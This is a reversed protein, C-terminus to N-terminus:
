MKRTVKKRGQKLFFTIKADSIHIKKGGITYAMKSWDNFLLYKPFCYKLKILLFLFMTYIRHSVGTIGVQCTSDKWVSFYVFLLRCEGSSRELQCIMLKGQTRHSQSGPEPLLTISLLAAWSLYSRVTSTPNDSFMWHFWVGAPGRMGSVSHENTETGWSTILSM